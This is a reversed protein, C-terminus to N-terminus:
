PNCDVSVACMDNSIAQNMAYEVLSRGVGYSRFNERVELIGFDSWIYAIPEDEFIAVLLQKTSHVEQTLNWNCLFSGHISRRDHDLLWAYLKPIDDDIAVRFIVNLNNM